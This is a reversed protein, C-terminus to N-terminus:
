MVLMSANQEGYHDFFGINELFCFTFFLFLPSFSKDGKRKNPRNCLILDKSYSPKNTPTNYSNTEDFMGLYDRFFLTHFILVVWLALFNQKFCYGNLINVWTSCTESFTTGFLGLAFILMTSNFYSWHMHAKSVGISGDSFQVVLPSKAYQRIDQLRQSM